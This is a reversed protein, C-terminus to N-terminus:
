SVLCCRAVDGVRANYTVSQGECVATCNIVDSQRQRLLREMPKLPQWPRSHTRCEEIVVAPQM